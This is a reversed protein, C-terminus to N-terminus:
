IINFYNFIIATVIAVPTLILLIFIFGVFALKIPKKKRKFECILREEDSSIPKKYYLFLGSYFLLALSIISILPNFGIYKYGAASLLFATIGIIIEVVRYASGISYFRFIKQQIVLTASILNEYFRFLM